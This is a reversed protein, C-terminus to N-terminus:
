GRVWCTRAMRPNTNRHVLHPWIKPRENGVLTRRALEIDKIGESSPFIPSPGIVRHHTPTAHTSHAITALASSGTNEPGWGPSGSVGNLATAKEPGSAPRSTSHGPADEPLGVTSTKTWSIVRGARCSM